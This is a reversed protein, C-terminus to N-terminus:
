IGAKLEEKIAKFEDINIEGRALREKAINLLSVPADALEQQKRLTRRKWRARAIRIMVLAMLLYILWGKVSWPAYAFFEWVKGALSPLFLFIVSISGVWVFSKLSM